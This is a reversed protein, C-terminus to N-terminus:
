LYTDMELAPFHEIDLFSLLVFAIIGIVTAAAQVVIYKGAGGDLTRAASSILVIGFGTACLCFILLFMDAEKIFKRVARMFEEM